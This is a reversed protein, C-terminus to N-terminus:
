PTRKGVKWSEAFLWALLLGLLIPLSAMFGNGRYIFLPAAMGALVSLVLAAFLPWNGPKNSQKMRVHGFILAFVITLLLSALFIIHLSEM